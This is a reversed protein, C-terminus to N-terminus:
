GAKPHGPVRRAARVARILGEPAANMAAEDCPKLASKGLEVTRRYSELYARCSACAGLHREFVARRAAPLDGEIYDMLFEILEKCSVGGRSPIADTM